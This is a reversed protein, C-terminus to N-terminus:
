GNKVTEKKKRARPPKIINRATLIKTVQEYLAIAEPAPANMFCAWLKKETPTQSV